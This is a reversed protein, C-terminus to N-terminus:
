NKNTRLYEMRLTIIDRNLRNKDKKVWKLFPHDIKPEKGRAMAEIQSRLYKWYKYYECKYKFMFNNQDEFVFGEIFRNHWKYEDKSIEDFFDKLENADNIIKCQEKYELGLLKATEVLDEYPYKKLHVTNEIIDLLVVKCKDYKIIHPDNFIDIVEFALTVNHPKLYNYLIKEDVISLIIDKFYNSYIGGIESKSCFVLEDNEKDFGLLGLFGNEKKYATVPYSLTNPLVDANTEPRENINFFKDYGRAVIECTKDNIFLGRAKTTISDWIGNNFAKRTFNYSSINSDGQKIVKINDNMQLLDLMEGVTEFSNLDKKKYVPNKVYVGNFGSEDLVLSRLNGGYEIHECVNFCRSNVEIPVQEVNRHGHVQYVEKDKNQEEFSADVAIMDRYVGVGKILQETNVLSLNAPLRSIGGHTCLVVKENWKYIFCQRLKSVIKKSLSKMEAPNELDLQVRTVTEFEESKAVEGNIYSVLHREHNGELLVVNEKEAISAIFRICEVNEVGRDIYDGIFIYFEDDKLGDKLYTKLATYCGHIDGIHHVKKYESIDQTRYRTVSLWDEPKIITIGSPVKNNQLSQHMRELVKRGVQKHEPRNEDRRLCEDFPVDTFDVCYVRYRYSRALKYVKQMDGAKINTADLVTFVGKSFRQELVDFVFKWRVNSVSMSIRFKGDVELENSGLLSRFLDSSVTYDQLNNQEIFTSKGSAPLGRLLMLMRM